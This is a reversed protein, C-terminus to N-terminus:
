NKDLQQEGISMYLEELKQQTLILALESQAAMEKARKSLSIASAIKAGIHSISEETKRIWRATESNVTLEQRVTKLMIKLSYGKFTLLPYERAGYHSPTIYLTYVLIRSILSSLSIVCDWM